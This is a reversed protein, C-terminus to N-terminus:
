LGVRGTRNILQDLMEDVASLVRASAEYGRQFRILDAMEEDTSVGAVSDRRDQLAGALSSVSAETRQAGAVESGVQGVLRRYTEDAAGGRLAAIATAVDNGQGTSGAVIAALSGGAAPDISPDVALPPQAVGPVPAGPPAVLIAPGGAAQHAANIASALASASAAIEQRYADIPGGASALDALAGLRGLGPGGPSFAVSWPERATDGSVVPSPDTGLLVDIKGAVPEGSGDLTPQVQVQGYESLQDLLLDRRDLLDNPTDGRAMSAGIADNLDALETVIGHIPGGEAVLADYEERAQGQVLALQADLEAYRDVVAKTTDLVVRRAPSSTPDNALDGWASWMRGLAANLGNEGPESFALEAQGLLHTRTAADGLRTAQARYQVDAFRDRIREIGNVDVGTGLQVIVSKAGLPGVALGPSAQLSVRQRSYGPTAQNAINHGTLELARQHALLGRRATELGTFSSISM